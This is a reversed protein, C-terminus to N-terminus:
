GCLPLRAAARERLFSLWPAIGAGTKASVEFSILDPQVALARARAKEPDFATHPLLDTKTILFASSTQFAKPYKAPKEDGEPVSVCVVRLHEGLWYGAPCVLNGVNEIFVYEYPGRARMSQWAKEVLHPELHCAGGTHIQVTDIGLAEMREADNDTELDGEIVLVRAEGLLQPVTAELLTTKGAGATSILNVALTGTDNWEQHILRATEDNSRVLSEMVRRIVIM